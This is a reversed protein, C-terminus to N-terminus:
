REWTLSHAFHLYYKLDVERILTSAANEEGPTEL